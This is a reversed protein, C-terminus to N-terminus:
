HAGELYGWLAREFEGSELIDAAIACALVPLQPQWAPSLKVADKQTTLLAAAGQTGAEAALEQMEGGTYVHHDAFARQAALDFGWRRLDAFFASSNGLGCFAAVRRSRLGDTSVAEGSFADAWGLLKTRSTFIRAEPHQKAVLDALSRPDASDARTLVV